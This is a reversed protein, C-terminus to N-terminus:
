KRLLKDILYNFIIKIVDLNRFIAFLTIILTILLIFYFVNYIEMLYM